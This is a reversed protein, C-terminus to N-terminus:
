IKIFKHVQEGIKLFYIGSELSSVDVKLDISLIEATVVAGSLNRIEYQRADGVVGSVFIVEQTPNPYLFLKASTSLDDPEDVSTLRNCDFPYVPGFYFDPDPGVEITGLADNSFCMLDGGINSGNGNGYDYDDYPLIFRHLPGIHEYITDIFSSLPENDINIHYSFAKNLSGAYLTMFTDVVTIRYLDPSVRHERFTWIDGPEANYNFLTDPDNDYLNFLILGDQNSLFLPLQHVQRLNTDQPTSLFANIDFWNFDLNDIITDKIFDVSTYGNKGNYNYVWRSDSEGFDQAQLSISYVSLIFFIILKSM